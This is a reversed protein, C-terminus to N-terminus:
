EKSFDLTLTTATADLTDNTPTGNVLITFGVGDMVSGVTANAPIGSGTVLAGADSPHISTDSVVPSATGTTASETKNTPVLVTSATTCDERPFNFVTSINANIEVGYDKGTTADVGHAGTPPLNFDSSCIWNLFGLTSATLAN